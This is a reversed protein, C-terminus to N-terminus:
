LIRYAARLKSTKFFSTAILQLYFNIIKETVHGDAILAPDVDNASGGGPSKIRLLWESKKDYEGAQGYKVWQVGMVEEDDLLPGNFYKETLLQAYLGRDGAGKVGRADHCFDILFGNQTLRDLWQQLKPFM